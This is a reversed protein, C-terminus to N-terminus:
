TGVRTGLLCLALPARLAGPLVSPPHSRWHTVSFVVPGQRGHLFVSQAQHGGIPGKGHVTVNCGQLLDAAERRSITGQDKHIFTM